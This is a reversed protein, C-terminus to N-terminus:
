DFRGLGMKPRREGLRYRVVYSGSGPEDNTKKFSLGSAGNVSYVGTKANKIQLITSLTKM